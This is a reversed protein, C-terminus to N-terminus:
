NNALLAAVEAAQQHDRTASRNGNHTSSGKFHLCVQGNMGNGSIVGGGHPMGNISAAMTRGNISVWVPRPTWSWAGGYTQKLKSTDEQTVPEVDAHKGNSFSRVYYTIGTYVDTILANTGITMINKAESWPTYEVSPRRAAKAKELQDNTGLFETKIFGSNDDVTARSWGEEYYETVEVANGFKILQVVDSETTAESRLNVNELTYYTGALAQQKTGLYETKIFSDHGDYRVRSWGDVYYETVFVASGRSATALADSETTDSSRINVNDLTYYMGALARALSQEETGLFESRIFGNKGEYAVRIWGDSGPGRYTVNTGRELLNIVESKTSPAIRFNINELSYLEEAGVAFVTHLTIWLATVSLVTLTCRLTKKCM